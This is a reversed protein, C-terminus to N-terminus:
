HEPCPNTSSPQYIHLLNDTLEQNICFIWKHGTVKDTVQVNDVTWDANINQLSTENCLELCYDPNSENDNRELGIQIIDRGDVDRIYDTLDGIHFVDVSTNEFSGDLEQRYQSGDAMFLTIYVAADTGALFDASTKISVRYSTPALKPVLIGLKDAGLGLANGIVTM